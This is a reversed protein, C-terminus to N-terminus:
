GNVGAFTIVKGTDPCNDHLVSITKDFVPHFLDPAIECLPTLVFSRLHMHPHPIVLSNKNYIINDYLLIDIDIERSEWKERSKRGLNKEIKLITQLVDLPKLNTFVQVVQNLYDMQTEQNTWPTTEYITSKNHVPGIKVEVEKVADNLYHERNGLNSGFALFVTAM